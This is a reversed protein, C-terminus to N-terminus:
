RLERQINERARREYAAFDPHPFLAERELFKGMFAARRARFQEEPVHAYEARVQELYAAYAEPPAALIALDLSILLAAEPDDRWASGASGHKTALILEAVREILAPDEGMEALAARAVEASDEENTASRPDYVFDHFWIAWEVAPPLPAFRAGAALMQELHALTHYHRHPESYAAEVRRKWAATLECSM